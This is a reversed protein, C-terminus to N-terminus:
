YSKGDRKVKFDEKPTYSFKEEICHEKRYDAKAKNYVRAMKWQINKIANKCDNVLKKYSYKRIQFQKPLCGICEIDKLHTKLARLANYIDSERLITEFSELFECNMLKVYLSQLYADQEFKRSLYITDAVCYEFTNRKAIRKIEIANVYMQNTAFIRNAKTYQYLHELEHSLEDLAKQKLITGSIALITIQLVTDNKVRCIHRISNYNKEFCEKDFFNYYLYEIKISSDFFNDYGFVGVKYRVGNINCPQYNTNTKISSVLTDYIDYTKEVLEMSVGQEENIIRKLGEDLQQLNM